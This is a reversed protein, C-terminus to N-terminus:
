IVSLLYSFSLAVYYCIGNGDLNLIIHSATVLWEGVKLSNDLSTFYIHKIKLMCIWYVYIM